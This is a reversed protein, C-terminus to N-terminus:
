KSKINSLTVIFESYEKIVSKVTISGNCLILIQKVLSLGLGNGQESHSTDGQYFKDFLHNITHIDMGIGYDKIIFIIDKNNTTLSIEITGGDKSFKIANDILNLWVQYLLQEDNFININALDLVITINKNAWSQETLAVVRRIQEDLSYEIKNTLINTNELNSLELINNSLNALRSSEDIIIQIYESKEEDSLDATQLLRAFGRISVIPTKFEHSFNSIFDNRLTQTLALESVMINFSDNLDNIEKISETNLRVNFDGNAVKKTAVIVESIPKVIRKSAIAAIITGIITSAILMTFFVLTPGLRYLYVFVSSLRLVAILLITLTCATLMTLFVFVIPITQLTLKDKFFNNM